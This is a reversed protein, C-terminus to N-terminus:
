NWVDEEAGQERVGKSYTSITICPGLKVGMCFVCFYLEVYQMKIKISRSLSFSSLIDWVSHYFANGSKINSKIEKHM